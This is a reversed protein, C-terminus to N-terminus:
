LSTTPPFFLTLCNICGGDVGIGGQEYQLNPQFIYYTGSKNYTFKLGPYKKAGQDLFYATFVATRNNILGSVHDISTAETSADKYFQIVDYYDTNDMPYHTITETESITEVSQVNARIDVNNSGCSITGTLPFVQHGAIGSPATNKVRVVCNDTICSVLNDKNDGEDLQTLVVFKAIRHQLTMSIRGSTYTVHQRAGLFDSKNLNAETSQNAVITFTNSWSPNSGTLDYRVAAYITMTKSTWTVATNKPKWLQKSNDWIYPYWNAGENTSVWVIIGEPNLSTSRTLGFNETIGNFNFEIPKGQVESFDLSSIDEIESNCATLLILGFGVIAIHYFLHKM